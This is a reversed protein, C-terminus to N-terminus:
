QSGTDRCAGDNGDFLESCLSRVGHDFEDDGDAFARVHTDFVKLLVPPGTM